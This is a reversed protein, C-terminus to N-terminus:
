PIAGGHGTVLPAQYARKSECSEREGVVVMEQVDVWWRLDYGGGGRACKEGETVAGSGCICIKTFVRVPFVMV